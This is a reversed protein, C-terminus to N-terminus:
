YNGDIFANVAEEMDEAYIGGISEGGVESVVYVDGYAWQRFVNIRNRLASLNELSDAEEALAIVEAWESQAYGHIITTHAIWGPVSNIATSVVESDKCYEWIARAAEEVESGGWQPTADLATGSRLVIVATDEDWTRPDESDSDYTVHFERGDDTTFKDPTVSIKAPTHKM